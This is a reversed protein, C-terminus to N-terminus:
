VVNGDGTGASFLHGDSNVPQFVVPEHNEVFASDQANTQTQLLRAALPDTGTERALENIICRVAVDMILSVYLEQREAQTFSTIPLGLPLQYADLVGQPNLIVHMWRDVRAEYVHRSVFDPSTRLRAKIREREKDDFGRLMLFQEFDKSKPDFDISTVGAMARAAQLQAYFAREHVTVDHTYGMMRELAQQLLPMYNEYVLEDDKAKYYARMAEERKLRGASSSLEQVMHRALDQERRGETWKAIIDRTVELWAARADANQEPTGTPVNITKSVGEAIAFWEDRWAYTMASCREFDRDDQRVLSETVLKRGRARAAQAEPTQTAPNILEDLQASFNAVHALGKQRMLEGLIKLQELADRELLEPPVIAEEKAKRAAEEKERTESPSSVPAPRELAPRSGAAEGPTAQSLVPRM